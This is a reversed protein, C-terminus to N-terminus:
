AHATIHDRYWAVTNALGEDLTVRARYGTLRETKTMDPQRRTPSGPTDPAAVVDVDLHLLAVIRESLSQGLAPLFGMKKIRTPIERYFGILGRNDRLVPRVTKEIREDGRM